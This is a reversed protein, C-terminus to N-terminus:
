KQAALEALILYVAREVDEEHPNVEILDDERMLYYRTRNKELVVRLGSDVDALTLNLAFAPGSKTSVVDFQVRAQQRSLRELSLAQTELIEWV